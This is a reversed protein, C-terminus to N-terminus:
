LSKRIKNARKQEAERIFDPRVPIEELSAFFCEMADDLAEKQTYFSYGGQRKYHVYDKLKELFKNKIIFTQRVDKDAIESLTVQTILTVKESVVNNDSPSFLGKIGSKTPINTQNISSKFDKKAM